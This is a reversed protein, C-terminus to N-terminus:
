LPGRRRKQLAATPHCLPTPPLAESPGEEPGKLCIAPAQRASGPAGYARASPGRKLSLLSIVSFQFNGDNQCFAIYKKYFADIKEM